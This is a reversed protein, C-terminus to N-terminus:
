FLAAQLLIIGSALAAVFHTSVTAVAASPAPAPADTTSTEDGDAELELDIWKTGCGTVYHGADTWGTANFEFPDWFAIGFQATQGPVFQGDTVTSSTTLLRSMEFHYFGDQGETPNTHAWAGSWENGAAADDDDKRCFASVAYEDDKNAVEDNGSGQEGAAAISIDYEQGIKTTKLEWHVGVDVRYSDCTDPIGNDCLGEAQADPCGGMNVFTADAGIKMMTGLAANLHNDDESFRYEGPIEFAFYIRTDDYLCKYSAKGLPYDKGSITSMSTTIGEVDAWDSHDADLTPATTTKRCTWTSPCDQALLPAVLSATSLLSLFCSSSFNM